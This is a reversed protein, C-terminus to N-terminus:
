HQPGERFGQQSPFNMMTINTSDYNTTFLLNSPRADSRPTTAKGPTTPNAVGSQQHLPGSSSSKGNNDNNNGTKRVFNKPTWGQPAQDPNCVWCVSGAHHYGCGNCHKTKKWKKENCVSCVEKKQDTGNNDDKATTTGDKAKTKVIVQSMAPQAAETVALQQFEAMLDGWSLTDNQINTVSRNYLDTYEKMIGRLALWTYAKENMKFDTRELRDRLYNVRLQYAEMRDFKERRITTFEHLLKVDTDAGGKEFYQVLKDFTKKPDMDDSNWGMGKLIM